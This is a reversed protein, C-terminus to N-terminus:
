NRSSSFVPVLNPYVTLYTLIQIKLLDSLSPIMKHKPYRPAGAQQFTHSSVLIIRPYQIILIFHLLLNCHALIKM